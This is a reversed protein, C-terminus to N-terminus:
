CSWRPPCTWCPWPTPRARAASHARAATARPQLAACRTDCARALRRAARSHERAMRTGTFDIRLGPAPQQDPQQLQQRVRAALAQDQVRLVYHEERLLKDREAPGLKAKGRQLGGAQGGKAPTLKRPAKGRQQQGAPQSGAGTQSSM